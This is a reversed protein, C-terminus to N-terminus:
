LWDGIRGIYISGIIVGILPSVYSLGVMSAAFNYPKGGLILSATGNLANFRVLYSGYSFGSYFVVPFTLFILSRTLPERSTSPLRRKWSQPIPKSM